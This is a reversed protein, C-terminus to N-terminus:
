EATSQTLLPRLFGQVTDRLEGLQGHFFHGADPMTVWDPPTTMQRARARTTEFPVIDDATGHVLLWPCRSQPVPGNGAYALPPAITVLASLVPDTAAVKLAMYAGFSFGMIVSPLGVRTERLRQLLWAADEAEGEGHDHPGDSLGVGRFQFRLAILNEALAARSLAYVVKNDMSGHFLPHPHCILALGVPPQKPWELLYELAGAPGQIVDRDRHGPELRPLSSNM